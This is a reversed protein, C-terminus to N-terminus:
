YFVMVLWYVGSPYTASPAFCVGLAYGAPLPEALVKKLRSPLQALNNSTWAVASRAGAVNQAKTGDLKDDRAMNCAVKELEPRPKRVPAPFRQSRVYETITEQAAADAEMESYNPLAHAFDETVYTLEGDQVIGIGVSNFQPNLVNARHPPSNMVLSHTEAVNGGMAINEADRDCRVNEESVRLMLPEEDPLQHVVSDNRAMLITHKRAARSLAENLQLPAIGDKAREQNILALLQDEGEADFHEQAAAAYTIWLLAVM